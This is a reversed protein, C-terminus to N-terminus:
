RRFKTHALRYMQKARQAKSISSSESGDVESGDDKESRRTGWEGSPTMVRPSPKREATGVGVSYANGLAVDASICLHLTSAMPMLSRM